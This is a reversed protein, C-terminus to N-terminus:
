SVRSFYISAGCSCITYIPVDRGRREISLVCSQPDQLTPEIGVPPVSCSKYRFLLNGCPHSTCGLLDGAHSAHQFLVGSRHEACCHPVALHHGPRPLPCRGLAAPSELRPCLDLIQCGFRWKSTHWIRMKRQSPSGKRLLPRGKLM